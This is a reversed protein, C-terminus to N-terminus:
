PADGASPGQALLEDRLARLARSVDAYRRQHPHGAFYALRRADVLVIGLGGWLEHRLEPATFLHGAVCDLDVHAVKPYAGFRVQLLGDRVQESMTDHLVILTDAVARSALLQEVDARVGAASHDGDVLAFDVNRAVAELEDLLSPVLEQSRGIHFQVNPLEALEPPPEIIDFAHVEASHAAVRLLSGGQAVGIEIALAPKIQTLFGELAAREGFSMQCLPEDFIPAEIPRTSSGSDVEGAM